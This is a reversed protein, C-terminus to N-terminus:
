VIRRPKISYIIIDASIILGFFVLLIIIDRIDWDIAKVHNGSREIADSVVAYFAYLIYATVLGFILAWLLKNNMIIQLTLITAPILYVTSYDIGISSTSGFFNTIRDWLLFTWLALGLGYIVRQVLDKNLQNKIKKIM